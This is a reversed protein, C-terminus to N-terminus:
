PVRTQRERILAEPDASSAIHERFAPTDTIGPCLCNVRINDRGYDLALSKTLMVVAGKSAVYGPTLMQGVLGSISGMNLIVGGGQRRMIPVVYKVGFFVSKLNVALLHDWEAETTDEVLKVLAYGANNFLIDVRGWRAATEELLTKVDHERSVDALAFHAEGGASAILSVTEAGLDARVDAVTVKAGEKAFRIASARGIGRAAGTVVAVKGQLKM